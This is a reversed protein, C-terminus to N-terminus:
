EAHAVAARTEVVDVSPTKAVARQDGRGADEPTLRHREVDFGHRQSDAAVRHREVAGNADGISEIHAGADREHADRQLAIAYVRITATLEQLRGAGRRGLTETVDDQATSVVHQEHSGATEGDASFYPQWSSPFFVQEAGASSAECRAEHSGVLVITHAEMALDAVREAAHRFSEAVSARHCGNCRRTQCEHSLQESSPEVAHALELLGRQRM